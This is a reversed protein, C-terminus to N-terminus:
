RTKIGIIFTGVADGKGQKYNLLEVESVWDKKRVLKIWENLENSQRCNGQIHMEKAKFMMADEDASQKVRPNINMETLQISSPMDVAIRDAYFSSRSTELLGSSKLFAMKEEYESSLRAYKQLADQNGAYQM